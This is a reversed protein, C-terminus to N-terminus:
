SASPSGPELRQTGLYMKSMETSLEEMREVSLPRPEGRLRIRRDVLIAYRVSDVVEEALDRAPFGQPGRVEVMLETTDPGGVVAAAVRLDEGKETLATFLRWHGGKLEFTMQPMLGAPFELARMVFGMPIRPLVVGSRGFVGEKLPEAGAEAPMISATVLSTAKAPLEERVEHGGAMGKVVARLRVLHQPERLAPPNVVTHFTVTVSRGTPLTGLEREHPGRHRLADGEIGVSVMLGKIDEPLTNDVSVALEAREHTILLASRARVKGLTLPGEMPFGDLPVGEEEVGEGESLGMGAGREPTTVQDAGKVHLGKTPVVFAGRAVKAEREASAILSSQRSRVLSNELRDLRSRLSPLQADLGALGPWRKRVADGVDADLRDYAMSIRAIRDRELALEQSHERLQTARAFAADAGLGSRAIIGEQVRQGVDLNILVTEIADRTEKLAKSRTGEHVRLAGELLQAVRLEEKSGPMPWRKLRLEKAWTRAARALIRRSAMKSRQAHLIPLAALIAVLVITGSAAWGNDVTPLFDGNDGVGDGDTDFWEKADRPFADANDGVEDGDTDLWERNDLPFADRNDGVGDVDTDVWETRDRPFADREDGFTDGDTDPGWLLVKGWSNVALLHTDNAWEVASISFDEHFQQLPELSLDMVKVWGDTSGVAVRSHSVALSTLQAQTSPLVHWPGRTVNNVPDITYLSGERTAVVLSFIGPSWGIDIVQGDVDALTWAERESLIVVRGDVMGVALTSNYYGPVGLPPLWAACQPRATGLEGPLEHDWEPPLFMTSLNTVACIAKQTFKHLGVMAIYRGTADVTVAYPVGDLVEHSWITALTAPKLSHLRGDQDTVLLRVGSTTVFQVRFSLMFGRRMEETSPQWSTVGREGLGVLVLGHQESWALDTVASTRQEAPPVYLGSLGLPTVEPEQASVAAPLLACLLLPVVSLALSWGKM